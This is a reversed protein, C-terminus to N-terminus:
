GHNVKGVKVTYENDDPYNVGSTIEEAMKHAAEMAKSVSNYKQTSQYNIEEGTVVNRSTIFLRFM